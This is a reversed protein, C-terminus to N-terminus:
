NLNHKQSHSSIENPKNKYFQLLVGDTTQERQKQKLRWAAERLLVERLAGFSSVGRQGVFPGSPGRTDSAATIRPVDGNQARVQLELAAADDVFFLFTADETSQWHVRAHIPAASAALSDM